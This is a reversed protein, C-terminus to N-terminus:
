LDIMHLRGIVVRAGLAGWRSFLCCRDREIFGRCVFVGYYCWVLFAVLSSIWHGGLVALCNGQGGVGFITFVRQVVHSVGAGGPSVAVLGISRASVVVARDAFRWVVM